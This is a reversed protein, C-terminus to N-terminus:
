PKTSEGDVVLRSEVSQVPQEPRTEDTRVEQRGDCVDLALLVATSLEDHRLMHWADDWRDVVWQEVWWLGEDAKDNRQCLLWIPNHDLGAWPVNGDHRVLGWEGEPTFDTTVRVVEGEGVFEFAVAHRLLLRDELVNM